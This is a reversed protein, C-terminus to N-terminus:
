KEFTYIKLLLCINININKNTPKPTFTGIIGKCTHNGSAWTSAGVGPDIIKALM